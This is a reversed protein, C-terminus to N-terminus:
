GTYSDLNQKLWDDLWRFMEGVWPIESLVQSVVFTVLAIVVVTGVVFGLGRATGALFNVWFVSKISSIYRIYDRMEESKLTDISVYNNHVVEARSPSSKKVKKKPLVSSSM